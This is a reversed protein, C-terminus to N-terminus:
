LDHGTGQDGLPPSQSVTFEGTMPDIGIRELYTWLLFERACLNDKNYQQLDKPVYGPDSCCAALFSWITLFFLVIYLSFFSYHLAM